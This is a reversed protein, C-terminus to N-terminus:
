DTGYEEINLKRSIDITRVVLNPLPNEGKRKITPSVVYRFINEGSQKYKKNITYSDELTNALYWKKLSVVDGVNFIRHKSM